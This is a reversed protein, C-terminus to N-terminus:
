RGKPSEFGAFSAAYFFRKPVTVPIKREPGARLPDGTPLAGFSGVDTTKGEGRIDM